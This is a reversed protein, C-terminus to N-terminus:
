IFSLPPKMNKGTGCVLPEGVEGDKEELVIIKVGCRRAAAELAM